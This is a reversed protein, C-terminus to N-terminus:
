CQTEETEAILADLFDTLIEALLMGREEGIRAVARRMVSMRRELEEEFRRKGAETPQIYVVRRDNPDDVREVYNQEVLRNVAQTAAPKSVMMFRSVDTMRVRSQPEEGGFLLGFTVVDCSSEKMSADQRRNLKGLRSIVSYLTRVEESNM